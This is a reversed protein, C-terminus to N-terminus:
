KNRPISLKAQETYPSWSLHPLTPHASGRIFGPQNVGAGNEKVFAKLHEEEMKKLKEWLGIQGPL